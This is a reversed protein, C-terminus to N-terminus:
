TRTGAQRAKVREISSRAAEQRKTATEKGEAEIQELLESVFQQEATTMAGEAKLTRILSLAAGPKLSKLVALRDEQRMPLAPAQRAPLGNAQEGPGVIRGDRVCQPPALVEKGEDDVALVHRALRNEKRAQRHEKVKALVHGPQPWFELPPVARSVEFAAAQFEEATVPPAEQEMLAVWYDVTQPTVKAHQWQLLWTAFVEAITQKLPKQM